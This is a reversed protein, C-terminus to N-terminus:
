SEARLNRGRLSRRRFAGFALLDLVLLGREGLGVAVPEEVVGGVDDEVAGDRVDVVAQLGDLAADEVGEPVHVVAAEV